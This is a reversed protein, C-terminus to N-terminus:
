PRCYILPLIWEFRFPGHHSTMRHCFRADDHEGRQDGSRRRVAVIRAILLGRGVGGDEASGNVDVNVGIGVVHRARNVAEVNGCQCSRLAHAADHELIMVVRGRPQRKERPFLCRSELHEAPDIEIERDAAHIRGRHFVEGPDGAAPSADDPHRCEVGLVLHAERFLRPREDADAAVALKQGFGSRHDRHDRLVLQHQGGAM